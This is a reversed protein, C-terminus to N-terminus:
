FAWMTCMHVVVVVVDVGTSRRASGKDREIGDERKSLVISVKINM